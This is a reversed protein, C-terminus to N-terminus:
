LHARTLAESLTWLDKQLEPDKSYATDHQPLGYDGRYIDWSGETEVVESTACYLSSLAGDSTKIFIRPALAKLPTNDYLNSAVFGPHVASSRIEQPSYQKNVQRSFLIASLKAQSYRMYKGLQSPGMGRNIAAKSTFDPSIAPNYTLFNHAFSSLNILRSPHGSDKGTKAMVPALLQFLAFHTLHNVQFTQEIGDDTLKYPAAMVGANTVLIDLRTEESLFQEACRKASSLDMLDINIFHVDLSKGAAENLEKIAAQAKSETRSAMYVKAGHHALQRVTEKGIGGNGGTVIAVKGQLEPIDSAQFRSAAM